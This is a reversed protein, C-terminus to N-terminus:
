LGDINQRRTQSRDTRDTTVIFHAQTYPFAPAIEAESILDLVYDYGNLEYYDVEDKLVVTWGHHGDRVQRCVFSLRCGKDQYKESPNSVYLINNLNNFM